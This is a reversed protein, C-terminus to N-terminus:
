ELRETGTPLYECKRMNLVNIVEKALTEIDGEMM